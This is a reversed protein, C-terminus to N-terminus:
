FSDDYKTKDPHGDRLHVSVQRWHADLVLLFCECGEILERASTVEAHDQPRQVRNVAPYMVVLARAAFVIAAELSALAALQYEALAEASESRIPGTM